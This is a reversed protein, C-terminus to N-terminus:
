RIQGLDPKASLEPATTHPLPERRTGCLQGFVSLARHARVCHSFVARRVQGSSLLLAFVSLERSSGCPPPSRSIWFRGFIRPFHANECWMECRERDKLEIWHARNAHFVYPLYQWLMVHFICLSIWFFIYLQRERKAKSETERKRNRERM